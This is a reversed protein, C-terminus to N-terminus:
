NLHILHIMNYVDFPNQHSCLLNTLSVSLYVLPYIISRRKEERKREEKKDERREEIGEWHAYVVKVANYQLDNKVLDTLMIEHIVSNLSRTPYFLSM